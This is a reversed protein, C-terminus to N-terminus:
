MKEWEQAEPTNYESFIQNVYNFFDKKDPSRDLICVMLSKTKPLDIYIHREEATKLCMNIKHIYTVSQKIFCAVGSEKRSRDIRISDYNENGIKNSSISM